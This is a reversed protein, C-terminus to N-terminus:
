EYRLAEAPATRAARVAPYVTAAATLILAAVGIVVVNSWRVISPVSTNYYISSSFIQFGFTNQLFPVITDVNFALALGLVVGLAVGLWGIVLGQTLFVGMVRRPSTGFTRLIAIDTRKDTVVMVLMAVINFAAVAVILLLILSMMTKEIRIARFYDANDQTWDIVEFGQPLRARLAASFAPAALVDRYRVRLGQDGQASPALARVDDINAFVLSADHDPGAQFVGAVSFQRLRPEPVGGASVTPILLTLSDGPALGLEEAITEGVIVRDSGPELDALKGETIAGALHTVSTEAKPDIGRLEVPLMVPTRVALAQLQAYPAVGTVGPSRRVAAAAAQWQAPTATTSGAAGTLVVRADADLSLLEGRLEGEFGNMVSLVVILAAVGVCVGVLSTWTIFSVFFTHSRARVYRLGVFLSLPHFM